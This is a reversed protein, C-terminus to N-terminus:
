LHQRAEYEEDWDLTETSRELTREHGKGSLIVTDGPHAETIAAAIAKRRDPELQFDTGAIAGISRAGHALDALIVEIAESRSDEETFFVLDAKSAAVQGLPFRKTPDRKDRQEM